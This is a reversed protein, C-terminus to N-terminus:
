INYKELSSIEQSTLPQAVQPAGFAEALAQQFAPVIIYINTVFDKHDRANRYEPMDKPMKLYKFIMNLDFQYLITGHHLVYDKTRRQANGSFKKQNSVLALDSIPCFVAEIGQQKLAGLVKESIWQYSQRLDNLVPYKQKSLILCYNLCGPGQVVTGGGSARHIVPISDKTTASLDVDDEVKGIRGLVVGYTPSEWFRLYEGAGHKVALQFLVDDFHVNQALTSFSHIKLQMRPYFTAPKLM